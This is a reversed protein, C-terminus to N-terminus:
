RGIRFGVTVAEDRRVFLWSLVCGVGDAVRSCVSFDAYLSTRFDRPKGTLVTINVM